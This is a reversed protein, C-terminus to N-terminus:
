RNRNQSTGPRKRKEETKEGEKREEKGDTFFLFM